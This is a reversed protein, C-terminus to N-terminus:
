GRGRGAGGGAGAPARFLSEASILAPEPGPEEIEVREVEPAADAVAEEVLAAAAAASGGCGGGARLRLRATGGDIGLLEVTAGRLRPALAALAREVRTPTDHPHLGHLLLLHAVLEDAALAEALARDGDAGAHALVRALGEGYLEVCTQVLEVAVARAAPDALSEVQELLTGVRRARERARGDDFATAAV